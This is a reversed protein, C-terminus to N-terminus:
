KKVSPRKNSREHLLRKTYQKDRLVYMETSEGPALHSKEFTAAAFVGPSICYEDEVSRLGNIDNTVRVIDIIERSSELQMVTEHFMVLKSTDCPYRESEPVEGYLKLSFGQPINEKAVEVLLNAIREQYADSNTHLQSEGRELAKNIEHLEAEAVKLEAEHDDIIKQRKAKLDRSLMIHVEGMVPPVADPLLLVNVASEPLGREGVMLAIPETASVPTIYLFGGDILMPADTNATRIDLNDFNFAIRNSQGHGVTMTVPDNPKAHIVPTPTYIERAKSAIPDAAEQQSQAQRDPTYSYQPYPDIVNNGSPVPSYDDAKMPQVNHNINSAAKRLRGQQDIEPFEGTRLAENGVPLNHATRELILQDLADYEAKTIEKKASNGASIPATLNEPLFSEPNAQAVSSSALLILTSLLTKKM